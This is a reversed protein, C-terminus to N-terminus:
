GAAAAEADSSGEKKGNEGETNGGMCTEGEEEFNCTIAHSETPQDFYLFGLIGILWPHSIPNNQRDM